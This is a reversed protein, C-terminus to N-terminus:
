KLRALVGQRKVLNKYNWQIEKSKNLWRILDVDNIQDANTYRAESAQYKGM